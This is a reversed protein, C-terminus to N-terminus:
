RIIGLDKAESLTLRKKAGMMSRLAYKGWQKDLKTKKIFNLAENDAEEEIAIHKKSGYFTTDHLEETTVKGEKWQKYHAMEHIFTFLAVQEAALDVGLIESVRAAKEEISKLDLYVVPGQKDAIFRGIDKGIVLPNKITKPKKKM